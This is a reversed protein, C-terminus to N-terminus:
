LRSPPLDKTLTTRYKDRLLEALEELGPQWPRITLDVGLDYGEDTSKTAVVLGTAASLAGEYVVQWICINVTHSAESVTRAYLPNNQMLMIIIRDYDSPSCCKSRLEENYGAPVKALWDLSKM